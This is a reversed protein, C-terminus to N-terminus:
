SRPSSISGREIVPMEVLHNQPDLNELLAQVAFNGMQEHPLAITTLGPRLYSAIEDNDFSVISIESPIQIGLETLAQYAGFAIRDNMCLIATVGVRQSILSRTAEFAAEPEWLELSIEEAFSYNAKEMEKYIGQMRSAVTASRFANKVVEENTGLLVIGNTHGQDLLLRVAKSGGQLEDPLVARKHVRSTANLMVVPVGEPVSPLSIERAKMSAFILGDVQRDLMSEIAETERVPDGGTETVLLVHDASAAGELAGKILGSAYRTTAVVDSIFGITESIDTRLSRASISPRYGLAEAAATVRKRADESLRSNPRGNLILSVATPSLGSVRAVDALTPRKPILM